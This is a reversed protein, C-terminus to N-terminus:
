WASNHVTKTEPGLSILNILSCVSLVTHQWLVELIIYHTYVYFYGWTHLVRGQLLLLRKRVTWKVRVFTVEKSRKSFKDCICVCMYIHTHTHTIRLLTLSDHRTGSARQQRRKRTTEVWKNNFYLHLSFFSLRTGRLFVVWKEHILQPNTSPPPPPSSHSFCTVTRPTRMIKAELLFCVSWILFNYACWLKDCDDLHFCDIDFVSIYM